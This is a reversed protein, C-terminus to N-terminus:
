KQAERWQQNAERESQRHGAVGSVILSLLILVSVTVIFTM